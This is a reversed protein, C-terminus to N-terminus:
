DIDPLQQVGAAAGTLAGRMTSPMVLIKLRTDLFNGAGAIGAVKVGSGM